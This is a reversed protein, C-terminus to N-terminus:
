NVKKNQKFVILKARTANHRFNHLFEDNDSFTAYDRLIPIMNQLLHQEIYDRPPMHEAPHRVEAQVIEFRNYFSKRDMIPAPDISAGVDLMNVRPNLWINELFELNSLIELIAERPLTGHRFLMKRYHEVDENM